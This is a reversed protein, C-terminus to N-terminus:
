QTDAAPAEAGTGATGAPAAPQTAGPATETGQPSVPETVGPLGPTVTAPTQLGERLISSPQNGRGALLSLTFALVLFISGTWWTAKTLLTTAHRTGFLSDSGAGAAGMAALGGGKGAQLLVVTTLLIADLVLLVLLVYYV